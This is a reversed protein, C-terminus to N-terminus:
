AEGGVAFYDFGAQSLISKDFMRRGDFFLQKKMGSGMAKFDLHKFEDWETVLVLVDADLATDEACDVFNVAPYLRQVTERVVPDFAQVSGGSSLITHIMQLSKAERIDDTNPKFALGLMGVVKGEFSGLQAEMRQLFSHTQDYNIREVEKLLDFSYGLQESVAILGRVDKPFCSGGYGLGAQLFKNGIRTDMGIGKAVDEVRAGTQECLRSMGNIFSIKMALFANAGYKILEATTLNTVLIPRGLPKFLEELKAASERRDTGIIVRDPHLSDHIATGERLFEPNSVVDVLSADVGAELIIRRVLDGTGVPVTSKNVVITHKDIAKAIEAAVAEVARLDTSGDENSPTGVAIFVIESTKVSEAVSPSFHLTGAEINKSLLEGLGPEYITPLGQKLKDIKATDSDVCIVRNGLEALIVGTVLGVYGTGIIAIDM